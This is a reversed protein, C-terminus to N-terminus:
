PMASSPMATMTFLSSLFCIILKKELQPVTQNAHFGACHRMM